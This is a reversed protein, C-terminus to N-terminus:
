CTIFGILWHPWYHRPTETLSIEEKTGHLDSGLGYRYSKQDRFSEEIQMRSSYCKAFKDAYGHCDALSSVLLWPEKYTKNKDRKLLKYGKGVPRRRKM